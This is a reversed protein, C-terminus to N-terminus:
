VYQDSHITGPAILAARNSGGTYAVDVARPPQYSAPPATPTAAGTRGSDALSAAIARALEPDQQGNTAPFATQVSGLNTIPQGRCRRQCAPSGSDRRQRRKYARVCCCLVLSLLVLGLGTWRLLRRHHEDEQQEADLFAWADAESINVSEVASLCPATLNQTNDLLCSGIDAGSASLHMDSDDDDDDDDDGNGDHDHDHEHRDDDHDHRRRRHHGLLDRFAEQCEPSLDKFNEIIEHRNELVCRTITTPDKSELAPLCVAVSDAVCQHVIDAPTAGSDSGSGSDEGNTPDVIVKANEKAIIDECMPVEVSCSALFEEKQNLLDRLHDDGHGHRRHANVSTAAVGLLAIMKLNNM